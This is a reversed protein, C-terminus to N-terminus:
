LGFFHFFVCTVCVDTSRVLVSLRHKVEFVVDARVDEGGVEKWQLWINRAVGMAYEGVQIARPLVYAFVYIAPLLARSDAADPRGALVGAFLQLDADFSGADPTTLAAEVRESFERVVRTLAARGATPSLFLEDRQLVRALLAMPVPLPGAFLADLPGASIAATTDSSPTSADVASLGDVAESAEAGALVGLTDAAAEPHAAM